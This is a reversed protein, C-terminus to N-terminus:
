CIHRTLSIQWCCSLLGKYENDNITYNVEPAQGEALQAFLSSRHLINIDNHSGSMGFFACWIWIYKDAVAELIIIPEHVHRTDIGQYSSPCNKWPWYMCDISGLNSPFYTRKSIVLLTEKTCSTNM